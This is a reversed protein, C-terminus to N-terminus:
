YWFIFAMNFKSVWAISESVKAFSVAGLMAGVTGISKGQAKFLHYGENAGDQAITVSVNPATQTSLDALSAVSATGSIEANLIAQFPKYVAENATCVAQLAACQAASFAVNKEYVGFQRIAGQAFNQMTTMDAFAYTTEQAYFGVYLEGKPQIRFYESIHYHAIDIFGAVGLVTSGSGTPQTLTATNAGTVTAAYPTGSNPFIGEGGKTTIFLSNATNSASFGHTQTLANIQAAYAAAATTTTTEEGAVLAYASLVTELGDIGTYTVALTDGIAPTGGIVIKAVAATEGLHTDTIGLAEADAVSFIKKIRDSSTFGSPLTGTYYHIYGSVYDTGPL